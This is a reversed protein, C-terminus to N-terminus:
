RGKGPLGGPRLRMTERIPGGIEKLGATGRSGRGRCFLLLHLHDPVPDRFGSKYRVGASGDGGFGKVPIFREKEFSLSPEEGQGPLRVSGSQGQSRFLGETRPGGPVYENVLSGEVCVKTQVSKLVLVQEGGRFRQGGGHWVR